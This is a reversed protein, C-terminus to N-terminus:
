IAEGPWESAELYRCLGAVPFEQSLEARQEGAWSNLIFQDGVLMSSAESSIKECKPRKPSFIKIGQVERSGVSQCFAVAHMRCTQSNSLSRDNGDGDYLRGMEATLNVPMMKAREKLHNSFAAETCFEGIGEFGNTVQIERPQLAHRSGPV